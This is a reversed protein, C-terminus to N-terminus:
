DDTLRIGEFKCYKYFFKQGQVPSFTVLINKRKKKVGKVVSDINNIRANEYIVTYKEVSFRQGQLSVSIERCELIKDRMSSDNEEVNFLFTNYNCRVADDFDTEFRFWTKKLSSALIFATRYDDLHVNGISSDFKCGTDSEIALLNELHQALRPATSFIDSSLEKANFESELLLSDEIMICMCKTDKINKILRERQLQVSLEGGTVRVMKFDITKSNEYMTLTIEFGCDTSVTGFVMKGYELCPRRCLRFPMAINGSVISAEVAPPFAPAGIVTIMGDSYTTNPFPDVTDGLYEQYATTKLEVKTQTRYAYEWPTESKDMYPYMKYDVMFTSKIKKPYIKLADETEPTSIIRNLQSNYKATFRPYLPHTREAASVCDVVLKQIIDYQHNEGMIKIIDPTSNCLFLNNINSNQVIFNNNSNDGISAENLIKQRKVM